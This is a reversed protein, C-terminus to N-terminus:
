SRRHRRCDFRHEHHSEEIHRRSFFVFPRLRPPRMAVRKLRPLFSLSLSLTAPIMGSLDPRAVGSSTELAQAM